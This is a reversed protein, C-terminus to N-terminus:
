VSIIRGSAGIREVPGKEIHINLSRHFSIVAMIPPPTIFCIDSSIPLPTGTKQGYERGREDLNMKQNGFFLATRNQSCQVEKMGIVDAYVHSNM